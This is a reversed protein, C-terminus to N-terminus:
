VAIVFYKLLHLQQSQFLVTLYISADTCVNDTVWPQNRHTGRDGDGDDTVWPQNRYTGREGDGDDSSV